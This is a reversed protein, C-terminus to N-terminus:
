FFNESFHCACWHNYGTLDMYNKLEPEKELCIKKSYICRTNFYCGRPPNIPSPIEGKLIIRKKNKTEKPDALPIASLLATSYPHIPKKFFNPTDLVEVFKGLYMVAIKNSIYKVVSLDHSIFLYSLNFKRQLDKLLNLIQSRISVDLASVPEDCVVLDPNLILARAIAARQRQGGSLEHPYRNFLDKGLGVADMIKFIENKMDMKNEYGQVTIPDGIIYGITKRPNLASYPDQFIIQMEKRIKKVDKGKYDDLDKSKYFIKGGTIDTLKLIMRGITTKGCGSEGVLAFTDGKYINFSVNDVARVFKKGGRSFIGTNIPFYKILNKVQLVLKEAKEM